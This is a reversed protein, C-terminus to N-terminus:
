RRYLKTDGAAFGLPDQQLFRGTSPDYHRARYYYLGSEADHERGIYTYPNDIGEVAVEFNGFSDYDYSPGPATPSPASRARTTPTAPAVAPLNSVARSQALIWHRSPPDGTRPRHGGGFVSNVAVLM